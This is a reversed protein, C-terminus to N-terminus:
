VLIGTSKVNKVLPLESYIWEFEDNSFFLPHFLIDNELGFDYIVDYVKDKEIKDIKKDTIIVLDFDTDLNQGTVRSGYCYIQFTLDDFMNILRSKIKTILTHDNENLNKM